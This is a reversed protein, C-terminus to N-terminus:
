IFHMYHLGLCAGVFLGQTTAVSQGDAQATIGRTGGGQVHLELGLHRQISAEFALDVALGLQTVWDSKAEIKSTDYNSGKAWARGAEARLNASAAITSGFSIVRYAAALNADYLNVTGTHADRKSTLFQAEGSLRWMAVALWPGILTTNPAFFERLAVGATARLSRAGTNASPPM